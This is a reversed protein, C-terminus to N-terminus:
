FGRVLVDFGTGTMLRILILVVLHIPYLWYGLRGPLRLGTRTPCLILPLSLGIMGQLRFFAALVPGLGDWTLFTLPYGFLSNVQSSTSGWFLAYALYAAALGGRSGRAMYLILIFTLGRWGYDVQVFGLLVAGDTYLLKLPEQILGLNMLVTNIPGNGMLLIRWGYIRILANTWFPVIILLMVVSRAVPSLRAMLYGFPYGVVICIATTLAALKLSQLLVKVYDPSALRAYNSLTVEGTVGMIEGRSLFSLGIVYLLAVFVFVISWLYMPLKLLRSFRLDQKQSADMM